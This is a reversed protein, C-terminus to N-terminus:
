HQDTQGGADYETLLKQAEAASSILAVGQKWDYRCFVGVVEGKSDYVPSGSFGDQGDIRISLYQYGGFSYTGRFSGRRIMKREGPQAILFLQEGSAPAGGFTARKTPKSKSCIRLLALDAAPDVKVTKAQCGNVYARVELEDDPKFGLKRKKADNLQGSVVHYSTMVLGDGVYFGSASANPTVGGLSSLARLLPGRHKRSFELAISITSREREKAAVARPDEAVCQTALVFLVILAVCAGAIKERM